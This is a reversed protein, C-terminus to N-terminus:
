LSYPSLNDVYNAHCGQVCAIRISVMCVLIGKRTVSESRRDVYTNFLGSRFRLGNDGLIVKLSRSGTLHRALYCYLKPSVPLIESRRVGRFYM